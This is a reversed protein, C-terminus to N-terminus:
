KCIDIDGNMTSVTVAGAGSGASFKLEVGPGYESVREPKPGFCNEIDGNFSSVDFDASVDGDFELTIDGSVAEAELKGGDDLAALFFLDGSVTTIVVREYNGESILLDGSVAEATVEGGVLRITVDGSVTNAKTVVNTGNGQVDVDGSVSEARVNAEFVESEVDGSVVHLSQEGRVGEVAIDASIAAVEVSSKAPVRVVIDSATRSGDGQPVKVKVIVTDGDRELVLEEVNDGLEGTVEVRDKSWGVVEITGATNFIDVHGDDAADISENVDGARAALALMLGFFITLIRYNLM